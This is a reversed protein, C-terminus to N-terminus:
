RLSDKKDSFTTHEFTVDRYKEEFMEEEKKSKKMLLYLAVAAGIIFVVLTIFAPLYESKDDPFYLFEMM